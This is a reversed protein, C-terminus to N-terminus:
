LVNLNLKQIAICHILVFIKKSNKKYITNTKKIADLDKYHTSLTKNALFNDFFLIM